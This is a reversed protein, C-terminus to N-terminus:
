MAYDEGMLPEFIEKRYLEGLAEATLDVGQTLGQWKTVLESFRAIKAEADAVGRDAALSAIKALDQKVFEQSAAVFDASAEHVKIGQARAAELAAAGDKVYGVTTEAIAHAGAAVMALAKASPMLKGKEM